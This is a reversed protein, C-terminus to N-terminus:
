ACEIKVEVEKLIDEADGVNMVRSVESYERQMSDIVACTIRGNRTLIHRLYGRQDVGKLRQVLGLRGM